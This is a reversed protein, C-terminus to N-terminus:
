PFYIGGTTRNVAYNRAVGLGENRKNWLKFRKDKNVFKLAIEETADTSGDNVIIAEWDQINQKLVSELTEEITEESNYCPIIISLKM